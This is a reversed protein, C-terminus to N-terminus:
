FKLECWMLKMTRVRTADLQKQKRCIQHLCPRRDVFDQTIMDFSSLKALHKNGIERAWDGVKNSIGLAGAKRLEM